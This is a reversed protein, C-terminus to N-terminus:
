GPAYSRALEREGLQFYRLTEDRTTDLLETIRM